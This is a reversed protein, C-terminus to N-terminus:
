ESYTFGYMMNYSFPALVQPSKFSTARIDGTSTVQWNVIDYATQGIRQPYDKSDPNLGNDAFLCNRIFIDQNPTAQSQSKFKSDTYWPDTACILLGAGANERFECQSIYARQVGGELDLGVGDHCHDNKYSKRIIGNFSSNIIKVDSVYQLFGGCIGSDAYGGGSHVDFNDIILGQTLNFMFGGQLVDSGQCNEVFVNFGLATNTDPYYVANGLGVDCFTFSLDHFYIDKFFVDSGPIPACGQDAGIFIGANWFIGNGNNNTSWNDPFDSFYRPDNMRIEHFECNAVEIGEITDYSSGVKITKLFLGVKASEFRIYEVKIHDLSDIQVAYTNKVDGPKIIPLPQSKEGYATLLIAKERTGSQHQHHKLHLVAHEGSLSSFTDGRKLAIVDGAKLRVEGNSLVTFDRYPREISGDRHQHKSSSSFHYVMGESNTKATYKFSRSPDNFDWQWDPEEALVAKATQIMMPQPLTPLASFDPSYRESGQGFVRLVKEGRGGTAGIKLHGVENLF